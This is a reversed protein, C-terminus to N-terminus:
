SLIRKSAVIDAVISAREEELKQYFSLTLMEFTEATPQVNFIRRGQVVQQQFVTNVLRLNILDVPRNLVAVLASRCESLALNGAAKASAHPLLLAIDVDSDAREYETGSSGFLYIAQVDPYHHTVVKVIKQERM